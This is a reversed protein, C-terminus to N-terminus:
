EYKLANDILHIVVRSSAVISNARVYDPNNVIFDRAMLNYVKNGSTIVNAKLYAGNKLGQSQIELNNGNSSLTLRHFKDNSNRAATEYKMNSFSKGSVFVLNDMLHYKLFNLLYLTKEKKLVPDEEDAIEEWTFLREDEGFTKDLAAKTPAFVTYRFNNFSNVVFGLGSGSTTSKLDFIPVIDEDQSFFNFVQSNGKLLDFFATYEDHEGLVTYVSKSPDHLVQNVFYTRGNDSDYISKQQTVENVVIQSPTSHVEIDGGGYLKLGSGTGEIKLMTGGKTLAYNTQGDDIYGSMQNGAKM